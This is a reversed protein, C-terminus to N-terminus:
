KENAQCHKLLSIGLIQLMSATADICVNFLFHEQCKLPM